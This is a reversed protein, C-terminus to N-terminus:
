KINLTVTLTDSYTGAALTTIGTFDIFVDSSLVGKMPSENRAIQAACTQTLLGSVISIGGGRNKNDFEVSYRLLESSIADILKAGAPSLPCNSSAIVLTYGRTKTCTQTVAGVKLHHSGAITLPLTQATQAAAFSIVCDAAGARSALGLCVGALICRSLLKM